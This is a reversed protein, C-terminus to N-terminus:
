RPAWTNAVTTVLVFSYYTAEIVLISGASVIVVYWLVLALAGIM